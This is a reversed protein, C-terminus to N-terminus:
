AVDPDHVTYPTFWELLQAAREAKAVLIETWTPPDDIQSTNLVAEPIALTDPPVVEAGQVPFHHIDVKVVLPLDLREVGGGTAYVHENAKEHQARDMVARDGGHSDIYFQGVYYGASFEEFLAM